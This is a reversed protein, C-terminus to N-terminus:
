KKFVENLMDKLDDDEDEDAEKKNPLKSAMLDKNDFHISSGMGRM